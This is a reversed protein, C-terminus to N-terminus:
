APRHTQVRVFRETFLLLLEYESCEGIMADKCLRLDYIPFRPSLILTEYSHAFISM